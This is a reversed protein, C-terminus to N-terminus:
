DYVPDPPGPWSRHPDRVATAAVKLTPCSKPLLCVVRPRPRPPREHGLASRLRSLSALCDGMCDYGDPDDLFLQQAHGFFARLAPEGGDQGGVHYAVAAQDLLVLRSSESCQFLPAFTNQLWQDGLMVAADDLHHAVPHQNM